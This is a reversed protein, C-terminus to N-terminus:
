PCSPMPAGPTHRLFLYTEESLTETPNLVRSREYSKKAFYEGNQSPGPGTRLIDWDKAHFGSADFNENYESHHLWYYQDAFSLGPQSPESPPVLPCKEVALVEPSGPDYFMHIKINSPDFEALGDIWMSYVETRGNSPICEVTCPKRNFEMTTLVPVLTCEGNWASSRAYPNGYALFRLPVHHAQFKYRKMYNYGAYEVLDILKTEFDLEFRLCSEIVGGEIFTTLIPDEVGFLSLQRAIYVMLAAEYPDNRSVCRELAKLQCSSLIEICLNM